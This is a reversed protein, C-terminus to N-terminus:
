IEGLQKLKEIVLENDGNRDAEILQKLLDHRDEDNLEKVKTVIQEVMPENENWVVVDRINANMEAEKIGKYKKIVRVPTDYDEFTTFGSNRRSIYSCNSTVWCRQWDRHTASYMEIYYKGDKYRVIRLEKDKPTPKYNRFYFFYGFAYFASIGFLVYYFVEM